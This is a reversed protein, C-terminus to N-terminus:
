IWGLALAKQLAPSIFLFLFLFVHCMGNRLDSLGDSLSEIPSYSPGGGDPADPASSSLFANIVHTPM